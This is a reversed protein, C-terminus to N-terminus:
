KSSKKKATKSNTKAATKVPTKKVLTSAKCSSTKTSSIKKAASNLTAMSSLQNIAANWDSLSTNAPCGNNKWIWIYYAAERIASESLNLSSNSSNFNKM